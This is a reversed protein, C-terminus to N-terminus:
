QKPLAQLSAKLNPLKTQVVDWLIDWNVGFYDHILKDRMGAMAKWEINKYRRKFEASLNKAAEGLIAINRLVADQTKTDDLFDRYTMGKAYEEVRRIAEQMDSIWESDGRESM